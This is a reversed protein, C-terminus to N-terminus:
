AYDLSCISVSFAPEAFYVGIGLYGYGTIRGVMLSFMSRGLSLLDITLRPSPSQPILRSMRLGPHQRRKTEDQTYVWKSVAKPRADDVFSAKVNQVDGFVGIM